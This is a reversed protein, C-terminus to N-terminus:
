FHFCFALAGLPSLNMNLGKTTYDNKSTNVYDNPVNRNENESLNNSQTYGFNIALETNISFRSNVWFKMGLFPRLYAGISTTETKNSNVNTITGDYEETYKVHILSNSYRANVDAGILMMFRNMEIHHEYGLGLGASWSNNINLNYDRSSNTNSNDYNQDRNSLSIGSSATLRLAGNETYRKYTLTPTGSGALYFLNYAGLSLENKKVRYNDEQLDKKKQAWTIQASVLALIVILLRKM